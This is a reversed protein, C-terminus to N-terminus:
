AVLFIGWNVLMIRFGDVGNLRGLEIVNDFGSAKGFVVFGAEQFLM